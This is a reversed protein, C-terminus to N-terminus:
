SLMQEVFCIAFAIVPAITLHAIVLALPVALWVLEHALGLSSEYQEFFHFAGYACAM